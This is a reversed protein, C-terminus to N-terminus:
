ITSSAENYPPCWGSRAIDYHGLRRTSLFTKWEQNQLKVDVLGQLNKKWMAAAAIAIKKHEESTNYSLTFRLPNQKSYGAEVLLKIAEEYRKKLDWSAWDPNKNLYAASIKSPSFTYAPEQGRKLIKETLTNRDLAM